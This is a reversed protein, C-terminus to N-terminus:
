PPPERLSVPHNPPRKPFMSDTFFARFGDAESRPLMSRNGNSKKEMFKLFKASIRSGAPQAFNIKKSFYFSFVYIPPNESCPLRGLGASKGLISNKLIFLIEIKEHAATEASVTQPPKKYAESDAPDDSDADTGTGAATCAETEAEDSVKACFILSDAARPIAYRRM